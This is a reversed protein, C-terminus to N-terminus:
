KKSKLDNRDDVFDRIGINGIDSPPWAGQQYMNTHWMAAQLQGGKTGLREFIRQIPVFGGNRM